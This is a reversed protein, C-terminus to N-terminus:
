CERRIDRGIHRPFVDNGPHSEQSWLAVLLKHRQPAKMISAQLTERRHINVQNSSRLLFVPMGLVIAQLCRCTPWAFSDRGESPAEGM